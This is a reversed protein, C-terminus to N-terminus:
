EEYTIDTRVGDDGPKVTLTGKKGEREFEYEYSGNENLEETIDIIEEQDVIFIGDENETAVPETMDSPFMGNGNDDIVCTSTGNDDVVFDYQNGDGGDIHGELTGNEQRYLDLSEEKGNIMIKISQFFEGNVAAYAGAGLAGTLLLAAAACAAARSLRVTKKKMKIGEMELDSSAHLRSFTKKYLDKNKM